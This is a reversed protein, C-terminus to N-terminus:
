FIFASSELMSVDDFGDLTITASLDEFTIVTSGDVVEFSLDDYEVNLARIDITEAILDGGETKLGYDSITNDGSNQVFEFTDSGYGGSLMNDGDGGSVTDAGNGGNLDDDGNGGALYDSGAGGNLVDNDDGGYLWDKGDGGNLVDKQDGGDLTDEGQGGDLDDYGDSGRVIDDGSGGFVTDNGYGGDVLDDGSGGKVHDDQDGGNVTDNGSGGELSDRGDEGLVTDDGSKGFILDDGFRGILLNGSGNGSLTDDHGSGTLNEIGSLVDGEADSGSTEGTSLNVSVSENASAYTAMDKGKGGALIDAGRGGELVDDGKGGKLTDRGEDGLLTDSGGGGIIEDKGAVGLLRDKGNGGELTDAGSHGFLTDDGDRGKLLDNAEGGELVNKGDNGRLDNAFDDTGYIGEIKRLVQVDGNELTVNETALDILIAESAFRYSVVDTGDGGNLTDSGESATITDDGDLAKIKNDGADGLISDRFNSGEVHEISILTDNNGNGTQFGSTGNALDITMGFSTTKAYSVTDQGLGGHIVDNGIGSYLLDDGLQGFLTDDFGVAILTDDGGIGFDGSLGDGYITTADQAAFIHDDVGDLGELIPGRLDYIKAALKSDTGDDSVYGVAIRGDDTMTFSMDPGPSVDDESVKEVSGVPVGNSAFAQFEIGKGLDQDKWGIVFSGDAQVAVHPEYGGASGSIVQGPRVLTGDAEYITYRINSAGAWETQWAVVFNGDPLAAVSPATDKDSTNTTGDIAVPPTVYNGGADIVRFILGNQGAIGHDDVVGVVVTEGGTLHATQTQVGEFTNSAFTPVVFLVTSSSADDQATVQVFKTFDQAGSLDQYAVTFGGTVADIDISPKSVKNTTTSTAITVFSGTETKLEGDSDRDLSVRVAEIKEAGASTALYTLVFGGDTDAAVDIQSLAVEAFDALALEESLATGDQAYIRGLISDGDNPDPNVWIVALTGDSLSIVTTEKAGPIENTGIIDTWLSM